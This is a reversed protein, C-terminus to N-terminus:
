GGPARMKVEEWQVNFNSLAQKVNLREISSFYKKNQNQIGCFIYVYQNGFECSSHYHRGFKISALKTWTNVNTDYIECKNGAQLNDKRSGTVVIYRGSFATASHGHRPFEMSAMAKFEYGQILGDVSKPVAQRCAYMDQPIQPTAFDGGGVLYFNSNNGVQVFQYNHPLSEMRSGNQTKLLYKEIKGTDRDYGMLICKDKEVVYIKKGLNSAAAAQQNMNQGERAIIHQYLQEPNVKDANNVLNCQNVHQFMKEYKKSENCGPCILM